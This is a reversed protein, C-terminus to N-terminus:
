EAQRKRDLEDQASQAADQDAKTQKAQQAAEKEAESIPKAQQNLLSEFKSGYDEDNSDGRKQSSM